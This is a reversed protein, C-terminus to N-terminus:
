CVQSLKPPVHLPLLHEKSEVECLVRFANYRHGSFDSLSQPEPKHNECPQTPCSEVLEPVQEFMVYVFVPPHVVVKSQSFIPLTRM